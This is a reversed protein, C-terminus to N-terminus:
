SDSTHHGDSERRTPKDWLPIPALAINVTHLAYMVGGAESPFRATPNTAAAVYVAALALREDTTLPSEDPAASM